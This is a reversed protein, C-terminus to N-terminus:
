GILLAVLAFTAAVLGIVFALTKQGVVFWEKGGTGVALRFIGWYVAVAGVFFLWYTLIEDSYYSYFNFGNVRGWFAAAMFTVGVVTVFLGSGKPRSSLAKPKKRAM